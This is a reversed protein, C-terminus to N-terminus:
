ADLDRAVIILEIATVVERKVAASPRHAETSPKVAQSRLARRSESWGATAWAPEAPVLLSGPLVGSSTSAEAAHWVGVGPRAGSRRKLLASYRLVM